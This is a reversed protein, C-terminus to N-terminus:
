GGFRDLPNQGATKLHGARGQYDQHLNFQDHYAQPPGDRQRVPPSESRREVQHGNVRNSSQNNTSKVSGEPPSNNSHRSYMNAGAGCARAVPLDTATTLPRLDLNM